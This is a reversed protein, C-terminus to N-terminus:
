RSLGATPRLRATVRPLLRDLEGALDTTTATAAAPQARVVVDCGRPIGTLRDAMLHRLVRKTRNRVVANGVRKSVVFGVRPADDDPSGFGVSEGVSTGPESPERLRAHVIVLRGGARPGSVAARFDASDRLRHRAPLM